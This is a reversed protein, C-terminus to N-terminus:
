GELEALLGELFPGFKAKNRADAAVLERHTRVMLRLREKDSAPTVALETLTLASPLKTRGEKISIFADLGVSCLQKQAHEDVNIAVCPHNVQGEERLRNVLTLLLGMFTSDVGTCEALDFVFQRAGEDIARQAFAELTPAVMMNGLGRIRVYIAEGARAVEFPARQNGNKVRTGRRPGLPSRVADRPARGLMVM